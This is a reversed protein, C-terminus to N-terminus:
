RGLPTTGLPAAPDGPLAEAGAWYREAAIDLGAELDDGLAAALAREYGADVKLKDLLRDKDSPRTAKA